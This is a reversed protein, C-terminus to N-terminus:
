RGELDIDRIGVGQIMDDPKHRSYLGVGSYGKKQAYHFYGNYGRPSLMESTMDAAQAKLEQMCVIDARQRALWAFFRKEAASRIGNLNITIIRLM